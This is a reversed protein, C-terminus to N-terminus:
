NLNITKDTSNDWMKRMATFHCTVQTHLHGLTYIHNGYVQVPLCGTSFLCVSFCLSLKLTFCCEESTTSFLPLAHNRIVAVHHLGSKVMLAQSKWGTVCLFELSPATPYPKVNELYTKLFASSCREFQHYLHLIQFWQM